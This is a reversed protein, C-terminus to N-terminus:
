KQPVILPMSSENIKNVIVSFLMISQEKDEVKGLM